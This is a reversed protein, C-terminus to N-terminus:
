WGRCEIGAQVALHKAKRTGNVLIGADALRLLPIDSHHDAYAVLKMGACRKRLEELRHVKEEGHCNLSSLRGSLRDDEWHAATCIVQDFGLREGLEEVYIDLSASLLVLLDGHQRHKELMAMAERRMGCSLLKDVFVTTWQHLEARRTGRLFARLFREKLQTNDLMGLYFMGVIWPLHLLRFIRWPHRALFGFVYLLYTDRRTLTGDLDFVVLSPERNM